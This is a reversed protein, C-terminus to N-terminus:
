YTFLDVVIKPADRSLGLHNFFANWITCAVECHLLLYDLSEEIRKCM